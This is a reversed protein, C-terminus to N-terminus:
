ARSQIMYVMGNEITITGRDTVFENSVTRTLGFHIEYQEVNYKLDEITIKVGDHIPMFSVYHKDPEREIIHTGTTLVSITNDENVIYYETESMLVDQHLLTQLNGLFHDLRKGTAGHIFVKRYGLQTTFQLAVELDTENKEPPLQEIEIKSKIFDLEDTSCSDFDGFAAIPRIENQLLYLTGKDVGIWDEEHFKEFLNPTLEHNTCLVHLNM